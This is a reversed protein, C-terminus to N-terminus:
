GDTKEWADLALEITEGLTPRPRARGLETREAELRDQHATLRDMVARPLSISVFPNRLGPRPV